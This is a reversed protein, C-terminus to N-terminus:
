SDKQDMDVTNRLRELLDNLRASSSSFCEKHKDSKHKEELESLSCSAFQDKRSYKERSKGNVKKFFQNQHVDVKEGICRKSEFQELVASVKSGVKDACKGDVNNDDREGIWAMKTPPRTIHPKRKARSIAMMESLPLNNNIRKSHLHTSRTKKTECYERSISSLPSVKKRTIKCGLKEKHSNDEFCIEVRHLKTHRRRCKSSPNQQSPTVPKPASTLMGRKSNRISSISMTKKRAERRRSKAQGIKPPVPPICHLPM